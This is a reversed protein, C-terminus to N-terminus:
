WGLGKHKYLILLCSVKNGGVQTLSLMSGGTYMTVPQLWLSLLSEPIELTILFWDQHSSSYSGPSQVDLLNIDKSINHNSLITDM